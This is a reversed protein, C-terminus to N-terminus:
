HLLYGIALWTQELDFTVADDDGVGDTPTAFEIVFQAWSKEAEYLPEVVSTVDVSREGLEPATSLNAFPKPMEMLEVDEANSFSAPMLCLAHDETVLNTFPAGSVANQQTQFLILSDLREAPLPPLEFTVYGRYVEGSASDGSGFMAVSAGTSLNVAGTAIDVVPAVTLVMRATDFQVDLDPLANGALDSAGSLAYQYREAVIDAPVWGVAFLLDENPTITLETSTENWSFTVGESPLDESAYAAETAEQDMPESFEIVIVDKALVGTAGHEPFTSVISPATDDQAEDDIPEDDVPEDNSEDEDSAPTEENAQTEDDDAPSNTESVAEENIGEEAAEAGADGEPTTDSATPRSPEDHASDVSEAGGGGCALAFSGVLISSFFKTKM